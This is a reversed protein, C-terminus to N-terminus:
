LHTGLPLGAASAKRHIMTYEPLPMEGDFVADCIVMREDPSPPQKAWESFDLVERGESVHKAVVMLRTRHPQVM